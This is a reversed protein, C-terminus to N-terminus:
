DEALVFEDVNYDITYVVITFSTYCYWERAKGCNFIVGKEEDYYGELYQEKSDLRVQQFQKLYKDYFEDVEKVSKKTRFIYACSGSQRTFYTDDPVLLMFGKQLNYENHKVKTGMRFVLTQYAVIFGILCIFLLVLSFILFIRKNKRM